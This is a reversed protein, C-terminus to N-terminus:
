RRSERSTSKQRMAEYLLINAAMAANLSEIGVAASAAAQPIFVRADAARVFEAPLGSGENGILIAAPIKWDIEWPRLLPSTAASSEAAVAAYIKIKSTGLKTLLVASSVAPLIPLRLSSGASARMAKPSFPDATGIEGAPCTVVGSAGFAEAARVITGVNGPDQVGVLVVLLKADPLLNEITAIRPKVLAAIGQPARTNAVGGFLKDSTQLVPVDRALVPSVRSLHRTGSDSILLADVTLGSGLAAEVLRVGEVGVFGDDGFEGSLAARFRKLWQNERSAIESIKPKYSIQKARDAPQVMVILSVFAGRVTFCHAIGVACHAGKPASLTRETILEPM